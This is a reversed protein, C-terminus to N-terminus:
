GDPHSEPGAMRVQRLSGAPLFGQQAAPGAQPSLDPHDPAPSDAGVWGSMGASRAHDHQHHQRVIARSM